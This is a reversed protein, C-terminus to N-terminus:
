QKVIKRTPRDFYKLQVYSLRTKAAFKDSSLILFFLFKSKMESVLPFEHNLYNMIKHHLYLRPM